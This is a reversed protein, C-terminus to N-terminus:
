GVVYVHFAAKVDLFASASTARFTLGPKLCSM